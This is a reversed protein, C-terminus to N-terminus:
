PAGRLAVRLEEWSNVDHVDRNLVEYNDAEFTFQTGNDRTRVTGAQFLTGLALVEDRRLWGCVVIEGESRHHSCFVFADAPRDMQVAYINHAYHGRMPGRWRGTTKVEVRCGAVDLEFGGQPAQALSPQGLGLGEQVVGQGLAGALQQDRTGDAYGRRGLDVRSVLETAWRTAGESPKVVIV